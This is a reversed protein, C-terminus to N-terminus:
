WTRKYVNGTKDTLQLLYGASITDFFLFEPDISLSQPPFYQVRLGGDVLDENVLRASTDTSNRGRWLVLHQGIIRIHPKVVRTAYFCTKSPLHYFKCHSAINRVHFLDTGWSNENTSNASEATEVKHLSLTYCDVLWFSLRGAANSISCLLSCFLGKPVPVPVPVSQKARGLHCLLAKWQSIPTPHM